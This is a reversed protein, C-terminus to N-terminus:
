KLSSLIAIGVIELNKVSFDFPLIVNVTRNQILSGVKISIIKIM